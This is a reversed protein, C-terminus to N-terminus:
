ARSNGKRIAGWKVSRRDGLVEVGESQAVLREFLRDGFDDVVIIAAFDDIWQCHLEM